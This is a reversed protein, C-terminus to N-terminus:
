SLPGIPYPVFTGRDPDIALRRGLQPFARQPCTDRECVKCGVGIPTVGRPDRVTRAVWLYRRGDPMEAVQTLVRGPVRVGRLGGM